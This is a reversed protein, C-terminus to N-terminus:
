FINQIRGHNLSVFYYLLFGRSLGKNEWTLKWLNKSLHKSLLVSRLNKFLNKNESSFFFVNYSLANLPTWSM